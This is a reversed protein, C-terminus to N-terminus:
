APVTPRRKLAESWRIRGTLQMLAFLTVVGLVTITLGTLGDWFHALAFGVQYLVQAVGAEVFAFRSGVALRLYSVVLGVSVVSALAFAAEVPLHDATYAFM